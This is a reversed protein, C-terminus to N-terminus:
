AVYPDVPNLKYRRVSRAGVVGVDGGGRLPAMVPNSRDVLERLTYMEETWLCADLDFVALAPFANADAERTADGSSLDRVKAELEYLHEDEVGIGRMAEALNFLYERNPGSPGVAAAIQAAVEETSAPGLWNLNAASGTAIYTLADRVVPEGDGEGEVYLDLQIRLDYQKERVELNDLV